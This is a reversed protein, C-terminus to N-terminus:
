AMSQQSRIYINAHYWLHYTAHHLRSIIHYLREIAHHSHSVIDLHYSTIYTHHVMICTHNPDHPCSITHYSHSSIHFQHPTIYTHYIVIHTHYSNSTDSTFMVHFTIHCWHWTVHYPHSASTMHHSTMRFHHPPMIHPSIVRIHRYYAHHRHLLTCYSRLTIDLRSCAIHHSKPTTHWHLLQYPTIHHSTMHWCALRCGSHDLKAGEAHNTVYSYSWEVHSFDM